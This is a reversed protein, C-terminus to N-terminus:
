LNCNFQYGIFLDNEERKKETAFGLLAERKVVTEVRIHVRRVGAERTLVTHESGETHINQVIGEVPVVRADKCVSLGTFSAKLRM